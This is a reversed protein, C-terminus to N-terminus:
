SDNKQLKENVPCVEMVINPVMFRNRLNIKVCLPHKLNTLMDMLEEMNISEDGILIECGDYIKNVVKVKINFDSKKPNFVYESKSFCVM